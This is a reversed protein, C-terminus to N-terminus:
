WEDDPADMVKKNRSHTLEHTVGGLIGFSRQFSKTSRRLKSLNIEFQAVVRKRSLNVVRVPRAYM